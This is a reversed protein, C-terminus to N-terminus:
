LENKEHYSLETKMAALKWEQHLHYQSPHAPNTDRLQRHFLTLAPCLNCDQLLTNIYQLIARAATDTYIVNERLIRKTTKVAM